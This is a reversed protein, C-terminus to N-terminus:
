LTSRTAVAPRPAIAMITACAPALVWTVLMTGDGLFILPLLVHWAAATTALDAALSWRRLGASYWRAIGFAVGAALVLPLIALQIVVTTLWPPLYGSQAQEWSDLAVRGAMWLLLAILVAHALATLGQAVSVLM